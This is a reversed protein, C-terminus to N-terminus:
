REMVEMQWHMWLSALFRGILMLNSKVIEEGFDHTGTAKDKHFIVAHIICAMMFLRFIEVWM